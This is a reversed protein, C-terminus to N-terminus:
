PSSLITPMGLEKMFATVNAVDYAKDLKYVGDFRGM